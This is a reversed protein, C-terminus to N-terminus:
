TNIQLGVEYETIIYMYKYAVSMQYELGKELPVRHDTLAKPALAKPLFQVWSWSNFLGVRRISQCM